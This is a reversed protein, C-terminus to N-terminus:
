DRGLIHWYLMGGIIHGKYTGRIHAWIFTGIPAWIIPGM